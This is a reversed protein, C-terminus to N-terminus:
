DAAAAVPVRLTHTEQAAPATVRVLVMGREPRRLGLLAAGKGADVPASLLRRGSLDLVDARWIGRSGGPLLLSLAGNRWAARPAAGAPAIGDLGLTQMVILTDVPAQIVPLGIACRPETYLCAPMVQVTVPYSGPKMAGVSFTPGHPRIDTICVREPHKVVTFSVGIQKEGVVLSTNEFDTNCNGYDHNVVSMSFPRGALVEKQKLFWGKRAAPVATVTLKGALEPVPLIKCGQEVCAPLREAWVEYTGAKLGALKYAPGYMKKEPICRVLPNAKDLFTLTIRGDQVRSATRLYELNCTFDPSLLNLTFDQEARVTSPDIVYTIKGQPGVVLTGAEEVQIAAKCPTAGVHCPLLLNVFVRYKGEALAPMRFTPGYPKYIAPCLVRPDVTSTFSLDIRGANVVASHNAYSHACSYRYSLVDLNFAQDASVTGPSLVWDKAPPDIVVQAQLPLFAMALLLLAMMRIPFRTM